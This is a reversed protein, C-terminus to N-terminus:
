PVDARDPRATEDPRQAAAARLLTRVWGPLGPGMERPEPALNLTKTTPHYTAGEPLVAGAPLDLPRLRVQRRFTGVEDVGLRQCEIRLRALEVLTVAEPPLPGFRDEAEARAQDLEEDSGASAIRRYLELRLSEQGLYDVPLFARVPLDIRIEKEEPLPEGKLEAVSEALLRAYTDFGVAAIHGSQEAGLLNGAGRIELDRMAVQFGSGLATLRSIAALREHAEDSLHAQPPFFLYAFAREASRGVRGRLQYLQSLGMREARDVVLTNATPVDLGSEIITTCVLVDSEANWFGLMAKELRAEDMQGHAVMVRAEPVQDQLWAAFRDISRVDARVWFVQGGRRLERRVAGLAVGEEYPGVYTLVPQRDEPPTDVVSLERVGSLAMELTRPIPTATMTLVDVNVRLRKLREKHAVGFRQEEDIVLLGLDKFRVDPSLLRHTGIVVDVKGEAVDAIVRQQEKRPLFRSLMEVRVPFPAYREGFTVSHQEALLTTPVLVAVQKGDMVAKFAARVAIETKGYGVDGCILRDMPKPAEMSRKVDVIAAFQDRTEEHPFADELEGQWPTDPGFAHGTAAMRASYLRVLEGAMDRVARRVRAKARPWDNTGLRHLRPQEGGVYRSVVDLQDAPVYLKDGAAYELLLYDREADGISRRVMGVYRGVGHVSHVAFDAPSLEAAFAAASRGTVKPAEHRRRRGFLDDEGVVAVGGDPFVFGEVLGSEQTETPPAAGARELVELARELSGRGAATVALLFGNRSLEAARAALREGALGGWGAVGLDDGEAFETLDLRPRGALAAHPEAVADPGDWGTAEALARAERVIERGRDLTRRTQSVLVWAGDPLLERLLPMSAFLLPATQEMGEFFLGDELRALADRLHGKRGPVAERALERVDGDPLLERVPHIEIADLPGTSTQTAPSFGRLREVQDGLFEIRAPRAATGPFIDVIGGRVAFEGRHAVLDTRVYGLGVLREALRDPAIEVGEGLTLPDAEGLTPVLRQLVSAIPAAVVFPGSARRLRHAAAARRAATEPAPSIGEVPLAEWAPFLAVRDPGLFAEAGSSLSEAERPGAAVALVPGDVAVALGAAVYPHGPAEARALRPESSALVRQFAESEVLPELLKEMRGGFLVVLGSGGSGAQEPRV